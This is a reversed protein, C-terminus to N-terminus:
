RFIALLIAHLSDHSPKDRGGVGKSKTAGFFLVHIGPMFGPM